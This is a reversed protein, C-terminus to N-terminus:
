EQFYPRHKPKVRCITLGVDMAVGYTLTLTDFRADAELEQRLKYVDGCANDPSLYKESPPYTDHLLIYGNDITVDVANFFDKRAQEYTHDGDIFTLALFDQGIHKKFLDDSPGMFFYSKNYKHLVNREKFDLASPYMYGPISTPNIIKDHAIDCHYIRRDYKRAVHSLYISSEGCGVEAISGAPLCSLVMDAWIGVIGMRHWKDKKSHFLDPSVWDAIFDFTDQSGKHM